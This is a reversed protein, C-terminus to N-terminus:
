ALGTAPPLLLGERVGIIIIGAAEVDKIDIYLALSIKCSSFHTNTRKGM